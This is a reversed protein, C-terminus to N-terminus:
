GIPHRFRRRFASNATTAGALGATSATQWRRYSITRCYVCPVCTGLELGHVFDIGLGGESVTPAMMVPSGTMGTVAEFCTTAPLPGSATMEQVVQFHTMAPAVRSTTTVPGGM